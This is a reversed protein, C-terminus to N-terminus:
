LGMAAFLRSFFGIEVKPVIAKKAVPPPASLTKTIQHQLLQAADFGKIATLSGNTGDPGSNRFFPGLLNRIRTQEPTVAKSGYAVGTGIDFGWRYSGSPILGKADHLQRVKSAIQSGKQAALNIAILDMQPVSSAVTAAFTQLQARDKAEQTRKYQIVQAARFGKMRERLTLSTFVKIQGPGDVSCGQCTAIGIDFGRRWEDNIKDVNEETWREPRTINTIADWRETHEVKTTWESYENRIKYLPLNFGTDNKVTAGSNIIAQGQIALQDNTGKQSPWEDTTFSRSEMAMKAKEARGVVIAAILSDKVTPPLTDISAQYGAQVIFSNIADPGMAKATEYAQQVQAINTKVTQGIPTNMAEELALKGINEGGAIRRALSMAKQGEPPLYNHVTNMALTDIREGKAISEVISVAANITKKVSESVPLMSIGIKDIRDGNAISRVASFAAGSVPQGPLATGIGDLMAESFGAGEALSISANLVFSVATGFVPIYSCAMAIVRFAPAMETLVQGWGDRLDEGTTSCPKCWPIIGKHASQIYFLPSGAVLVRGKAAEEETAPRGSDKFTYELDHRRREAKNPAGNGRYWEAPMPWTDAVRTNAGRGAAIVAIANDERVKMRDAHAHPLGAPTFIRNGKSDTSWLTGGSILIIADEEAENLLGPKPTDWYEGGRASKDINDSSCCGEWGRMRRARSM